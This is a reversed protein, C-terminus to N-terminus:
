LRVLEQINGRVGGKMGGFARDQPTITMPLGHLPGTLRGQRRAEDAARADRLAGDLDMAVVAKLVPNFREVRELQATLLAESTIAGRALAELADTATATSLDIM